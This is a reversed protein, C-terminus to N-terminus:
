DVTFPILYQSLSLPKLEAVTLFSFFSSYFSLSHPEKLARLTPTSAPPLPVQSAVFTFGYFSLNWTRSFFPKTSKQIEM